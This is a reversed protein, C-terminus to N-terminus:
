ASTVFSGPLPHGYLGDSTYFLYNSYQVVQHGNCLINNQYTSILTGFLGPVYTSFPVSSRCTLVADSNNGLVACTQPATMTVGFPIAGPKSIVPVHLVPVLTALNVSDFDHIDAAGFPPIGDRQGYALVTLCMVLLINVTNKM